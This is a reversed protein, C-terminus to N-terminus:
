RLRESVVREALECVLEVVRVRVPWATISNLYDDAEDDVASLEVLGEDTVAEDAM